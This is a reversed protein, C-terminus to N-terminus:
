KLRSNPLVFMRKKTAEKLLVIQKEMAADLVVKQPIYFTKGEQLGQAREVETRVAQNNYFFARSLGTDKMLRSVTVQEDEDLLRRIAATAMGVKEQSRERNKQVMQEERRSM